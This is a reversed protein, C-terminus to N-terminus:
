RSTLTVYTVHKYTNQLYKISLLSLYKTNIEMRYSFAFVQHRYVSIQLVYKM